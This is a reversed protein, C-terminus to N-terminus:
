MQENGEEAELNSEPPTDTSEIYQSDLLFKGKAFHIGWYGGPRRDLVTGEEGISIVDPPRLMPMPDATKVYTPLAIVRVKSGIAFEQSM